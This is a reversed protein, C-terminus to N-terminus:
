GASGVRESVQPKEKPWTPANMPVERQLAWLHKHYEVEITHRATKLFQKHRGEVEEAIRERMDSPPTYNGVIANAALKAHMDALPWVCGLPQVLGIFFLSPHDPHFVRLYLPVDGESYDIFSKDFFPFTIIFGTAAIVADYEEAKGDVFHVTKGDFRAIDRRPHVKGHRIFYLLESNMTAHQQLPGQKPRELGYNGYDGISLWLSLRLLAVRVFDPLGVIRANMVDTPMGMTFKPAIYYGQRMSIATFASIRSTEVAIDCASNGGGIVLVRQDQFPAATKYDHSHIFTGSFEGPYKPMRPNWHHGNAVLLYDFQEVSGDGLTIKWTEDPQLEAKAVETNFRIFETVGFHDAYGQFYALLQKHSPYDPYDAPMPYDDFQSLAKSSIIHTTDFVSSHSLRPSFVWNGGVQDGKEYIVINRLGAQLLNKGATIGSPGAGIVCVRANTDRKV